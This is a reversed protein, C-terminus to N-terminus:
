KKFEMLIIKNIYKAEEKKTEDLFRIFLEVNDESYLKELTTNKCFDVVTKAFIIKKLFSKYDTPAIFFRIEVTNENTLNVSDCHDSFDKEGWFNAIKSVRKCFAGFEREGFVEMLKHNQNIFYDLCALGEKSFSNKNIHFHLGCGKNEHMKSEFLIKYLFEWKGSKLHFNFTAPHSVIEIGKKGITLDNKCYFFSEDQLRFACLYKDEGIIELEIGWFENENKDEELSFFVPNPKFSQSQIM